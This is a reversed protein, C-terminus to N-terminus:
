SETERPARESESERERASERERERGSSRDPHKSCPRALVAYSPFVHATQAMVLQTRSSPGPSWCSMRLAGFGLGWVGFGRVM